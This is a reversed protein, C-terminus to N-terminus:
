QLGASSNGEGGGIPLQTFFFFFCVNLIEKFMFFNNISESPVTDLRTTNMTLNGTGVNIKNAVRM